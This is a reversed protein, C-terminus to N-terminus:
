ALGIQDGRFSWWNQPTKGGFYRVIWPEDEIDEWRIQVVLEGNDVDGRFGSCVGAAIRIVEGRGDGIDGQFDLYHARHNPLQEVHFLQDPVWLDPRDDCRFSLLRREDSCGPIEIMWDFHSSGDALTHKLIVARTPGLNPGLNLASPSDKASHPSENPMSSYEICVVV